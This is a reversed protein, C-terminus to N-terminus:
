LYGVKYDEKLVILKQGGHMYPFIQEWLIILVLMQFNDAKKEEIEPHSNEIYDLFWLQLIAEQLFSYVMASM